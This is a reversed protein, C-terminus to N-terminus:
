IFEIVKKQNYTNCLQKTVINNKVQHVVYFPKTKDVGICLMRTNNKFDFVVQISKQATKDIKHIKSFISNLIKVRQSYNKENSYIYNDAQKM